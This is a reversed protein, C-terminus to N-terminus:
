RCGNDRHQAGMPVTLAKLPLRGSPVPVFGPEDERRPDSCRKVWAVHQADPLLEQGVGSKRAARKVDGPV